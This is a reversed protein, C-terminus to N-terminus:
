LTFNANLCYNFAIIIWLVNNIYLYSILFLLVILNSFPKNLFHLSQNLHRSNMDLKQSPKLQSTTSGLSPASQYFDVGAVRPGTWIWGPKVVRRMPWRLRKGTWYYHSEQTCTIDGTHFSILFCLKFIIYHRPDFHSRSFVWNNCISNLAKMVRSQRSIQFDTHWWNMWLNLKIQWVCWFM